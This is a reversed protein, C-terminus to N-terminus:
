FGFQGLSGRNPQTGDWDATEIDIGIAVRHAGIKNRVHSPPPTPRPLGPRLDAARPTIAEPANKQACIVFRRRAVKGTHDGAPASEATTDMASGVLAVAAQDRLMKVSAWRARDLSDESAVVVPDNM